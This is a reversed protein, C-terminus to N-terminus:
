KVKVTVTKTFTGAKITIKTTGKKIGKIKGKSTVTAIKPDSSTYTVKGSIGYTKPKLTLTKGKKVSVSSKVNTIGPVTVTIKVKKSGSTVTIITKGPAVATIKGTSSVKAIKKNSSKYTIKKQTTTFPKVVTELNYTKKAALTLKKNTVNSVSLSTTKVTGTVAKVTYTRTKGSTLKITIKATGKKVGKLTVTGKKKDYSSVKVYKSKDSKVSSIADGNAMTVAFKVTKGTKINFSKLKGPVELVPTLKSGTSQQETKGCISCIHKQVKAASVTAESVTTWSGYKHNNTKAITETKTQGCGCTYTKVGTAKCTAATTVTGTGWSHVHQVAEELEKMRDEAAELQKLTEASVLAKQEDTLANYAARAAEVKAKDALTLASVAPLATVTNEAANVKQLSETVAADKQITIVISDTDSAAAGASAKYACDIVIKTGEAVPIDALPKYTKGDVTYTATAWYNEQLVELAVTSIEEAVTYTYETVSPEFVPSLIGYREKFNIGTIEASPNDKDCGIDAGQQCTYQWKILDGDAVYFESAGQNIFWNNYTIMWGSGAGADFEGFSNYKQGNVSFNGISSLYFGSNENGTHAETMGLAKLLRLTVAAITDYAKFPVRTAGVITGLANKYAAETSALESDLRVAKDEFSVTVYGQIEEKSIDFDLTPKEEEGSSATVTVTCSATKGGATATITVTGEAVGTVVGGEVTAVSADSSTWSVTKDTANDPTVTAKLAISKGAEVSVTEQNLTVNEVVVSSSGTGAGVTITIEPFINHAGSITGSNLGPAVEGKVDRHSGGASGWGGNTTYGNTLTYQAGDAADGPIQVTASAGNPYTYQGGNAYSEVGNFTYYTRYDTPNYIGSMKGITNHVGNLKIYIKEGAEVIGDQDSAGSVESITYTIRDGRVLQYSVAGDAKTIRIINNGSVIDAYYTGDKAELVTWSAGKNGSVEVKAISGSSVGPQLKIQTKDGVFYVTDHEADWASTANTQIGFNIDTATSGVQVVVLATRAPDVANFTFDSIAEVAGSSSLNGSIIDIADYGVELIATGAKLGKIDLWNNKANGTCGESPTVSIVDQGSIVNYTFDPEIMINTTDSNIIEWIRYAKLQFTEGTGLLLNNRYNVNVYMSDDGRSGYATNVDYARSYKPGRDDGEWDVSIETAGRAVYGAKTIEGEKSVRFMAGGSVAGTNFVVTKTGDNNDITEVEPIVVVNYYGQQSFMEVLADKPATISFSSKPALTLSTTVIEASDTTITKYDGQNIGYLDAYEGLTKAYYTYTLSNDAAIVLFRYGLYGFEDAYSSGSVAYTGNADEKVQFVAQESTPTVMEDNVNIKSTIIAQMQRLVVPEMEKQVAVSMGGWANEETDSGRFSINTVNEPVKVTYNIFGNETEGKDFSLEDGPIDQENEDFGTTVYFAPTVTEPVKMTVDYTVDSNGATLTVIYSESTGWLDSAAFELEYTGTKEPTYTYEAEASVPESGDVSVSYKLNDGDADTFISTLDLKYSEGILIKEAATSEVGEALVPLTNEEKTLYINYTYAGAYSQSTTIVAQAKGDVLQVQATPTVNVTPKGTETTDWDFTIIADDAVTDKLKVAITRTRDDYKLYSYKESEQGRIHINTVTGIATEVDNVIMKHVDGTEVALDPVYNVTLNVVYTNSVAGFCDEAMFILVKKGSSVAEYTYNKSIEKSEEGTAFVTYTLEDGEPDAFITSLDISWEEYQNVTASTSSSVGEAFGPAQNNDRVIQYNIQYTEYVNSDETPATEYWYLEASGKAAKLTTTINDTKGKNAWYDSLCSTALFPVKDANQVVHFKAKVRANSKTEGPLTVNIIHKGDEGEEASCGAGEIVNGSADQITLYVLAGEEAANGILYTGDPNVYEAVNMTLTFEASADALDKATFLLKETGAATPIYSFSNGIEKTEGGNVSVYYRLMSDDADTFLSAVDVTYSDYQTVKVTGQAEGAPTPGQNDTNAIKLKITYSYNGQSGVKPNLVLTAENKEDWKPVYLTKWVINNSSSDSIGAVKANNIYVESFRQNFAVVDFNLFIPATKETDSALVVYALMDANASEVVKEVKAKGISIRSLNPNWSDCATSGTEISTITYAGVHVTYAKSENGNSDKAKFELTYDGNKTPTYAYYLANAEVPNAGDVSVTYTMDDLDVDEFIKGLEVSYTEGLVMYHNVDEEVGDILTPASNEEGQVRLKITYTKEYSSSGASARFAFIAEGKENWKFYETPRSSALTEHPTMTHIWKGETTTKGEEPYITGVRYNSYYVGCNTILQNARERKFCDAVFTIPATLDANADVILTATAAEADYSHKVVKVGSVNINSFRMAANSLGDTTDGTAVNYNDEALVIGVSKITVVNSEASYHSYKTIAYRARFQYDKNDGLGSFKTSTQWNGWTEGGDSSMSYQLFADAIEACAEPATLEITRMRDSVPTASLVPASMEPLATTTVELGSESAIPNYYENGAFRSYFLYTKGPWLNTFKTGTQWKAPVAEEGEAPKEAYGYQIEGEGESTVAELEVSNITVEVTNAPAEPVTTQDAKNVTVSVTDSIGIDNAKTFAKVTYTGAAWDVKQTFSATGDKLEATGLEKGSCSFSVTGTVASAVTGDNENKVTATLVIEQNYTQSDPQVSLEVYYAFKDKTTTINEENVITGGLTKVTGAGIISGNVTLVTDTPVTLVMGEPITLTTGAPVAFDGNLIVSGYMSATGKEIIIGGNKNVTGGIKKNIGNRAAIVVANDSITIVPAESGNGHGKGIDDPRDSYDGATATVVGGTINIVAGRATAHSGLGIGSCTWPGSANVVGGNITISKFSGYTDGKGSHGGGIGSGGDGSSGKATINGSNITISGADMLLSGGIGAGSNGAQATLSGTGAITLSAPAAEATAGNKHVRSGPVEIGARGEGSKVSNSGELKITVDAGAGLAIAPKGLRTIDTQDWGGNGGSLTISVNKLTITAKVGDAVTINNATTSGTVTYNGDSTIEVNGKSINFATKKQVKVSCTATKEGAKATIVAEGAAVATVMGKEDVTAIAENSSSWTVTKDTANEPTVTATLAVAVDGATLELAEKDLAIETVAVAASEVTVKAVAPVLISNENGSAALYYTGPNRFTVKYEDVTYADESLANLNSDYATLKAGEFTSFVYNGSAMDYAAAEVTVALEADETISYSGAGFRAYADSWDSNQYVFAVLYDGTKISDALSNCSNNNLWYGFLGSTDGWLTGLSLGYDGTYTSYGAAAGGEYATEHVAYLADDVDLFGDADYDAVIIEKQAMVLTGKNAITVTMNVSEAEASASVTVTCSASQDGATATIVATGATIATVVGDAVTAVTENDSIWTVATESSGNDSVVAATLTAKGGVNLSLTSQDLTVGAAAVDEATDSFLEMTDLSVEEIGVIEFGEGLEPSEDEFLGLNEEEESSNDVVQEEVVTIEDVPEEGTTSEEDEYVIEDSSTLEEEVVAPEVDEVVDLVQVDEFALASMPVNMIMVCALFISLFRQLKKKTEM